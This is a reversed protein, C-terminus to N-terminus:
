PPSPGRRTLGGRSAGVHTCVVAAPADVYLSNSSPLSSPM